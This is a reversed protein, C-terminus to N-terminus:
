LSDVAAPVVDYFLYWDHIFFKLSCTVHHINEWSIIASILIATVSKTEVRWQM